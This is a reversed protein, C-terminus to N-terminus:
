TSAGNPARDQELMVRAPAADADVIRLPLCWLTYDGAPAERLDLGELIVTEAGLLVHHVPFDAGDAEISFRDIGILRIDTHDTLYRAADPTLYAGPSTLEALLDVGPLTRLLLRQVGEFDHRSLVAQSIARDEGRLDLVRARGCLVEPALSAVDLGSPIFHRPADVHTGAHTGFTLLSAEYPGSGLTSYIWRAFPPDGPYAPMRESLPLTVDILRM